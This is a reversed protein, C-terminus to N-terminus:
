ANRYPCLYAHLQDLHFKTYMHKEIFVCPLCYLEQLCCYVSDHAIDSIPTIFNTSTISILLQNHLYTFVETFTTTRTFYCYVVEPWFNHSPCIHAHLECVCYVIFVFSPICVNKLSYNQYVYYFLM